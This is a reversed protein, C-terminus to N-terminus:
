EYLQDTLQKVLGDYLSTELKQYKIGDELQNQFQDALSSRLKEMDSPHGYSGAELAKMLSKLQEFM